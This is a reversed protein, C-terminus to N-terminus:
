LPEVTNYHKTDDRLLSHEDIENATKKKRHMMGVGLGVFFSSIFVLDWFSLFFSLASNKNSPSTYMPSVSQNTSTPANSSDDLSINPCPWQDMMFRNWLGHMNIEVFSSSPFGFDGEPFLTQLTRSIQSVHSDLTYVDYYM